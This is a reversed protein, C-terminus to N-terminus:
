SAIDLDPRLAAVASAISAPTEFTEPVLFGDPLDVQFEREMRMALRVMGLSDLGLRSLPEHQGIVM